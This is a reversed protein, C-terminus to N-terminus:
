SGQTYGGVWVISEVPVLLIKERKFMITKVNEAANEKQKKKKYLIVRLIGCSKKHKTQISWIM